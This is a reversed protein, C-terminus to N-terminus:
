KQKTLLGLLETQACYSKAGRPHRRRFSGDSQMEWSQV